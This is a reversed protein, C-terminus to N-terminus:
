RKKGIKKLGLSNWSDIITHPIIWTDKETYLRNELLWLKDKVLYTQSTQTEAGGFIIEQTVHMYNSHSTPVSLFFGVM